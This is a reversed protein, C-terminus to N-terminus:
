SIVLPLFGDHELLMQFTRFSSPRTIAGVDSMSLLLPHCDYNSKPIISYNWSKCLNLCNFNAFIRDLKKDLKLVGLRDNIWTFPTLFLFLCSTILTLRTAVLSM